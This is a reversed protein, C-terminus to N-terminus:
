FDIGDGLEEVQVTETIVPEPTQEPAPAETPTSTEPNAKAKGSDQACWENWQPFRRVLEANLELFAARNGPASTARLEKEKSILDKDPMTKLDPFHIPFDRAVREEYIDEYEPMRRKRENVLSWYREVDAPTMQRPPLPTACIAIGLENDTMASLDGLPAPDSNAKLIDEGITDVWNPKRHKCEAVLAHYQAFQEPTMRLPPKPLVELAADLDHDTMMVHPRDETNTTAETATQEPKAEPATDNATDPAPDAKKRRSSRKLTDTPAETTATSSIPTTGALELCRLQARTGEVDIRAQELCHKALRSQQEADRHGERFEAIMEEIKANRTAENSGLEKPDHTTLIRAKEQAIKKEWELLTEGTEFVNVVANALEDYVGQLAVSIEVVTKM